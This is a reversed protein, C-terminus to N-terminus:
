SCISAFIYTAHMVHKQTKLQVPIHLGMIYIYMQIQLDPFLRPTWEWTSDIKEKIRELYSTESAQFGRLLTYQASSIRDGWCSCYCCAKFRKSQESFFASLSSRLRLVHYANFMSGSRTIFWNSLLKLSNFNLGFTNSSTSVVSWLFSSYYSKSTDTSESNM